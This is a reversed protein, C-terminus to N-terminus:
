HRPIPSYHSWPGLDVRLMSEPRWGCRQALGDFSFDKVMFDSKMLVPWPNDRGGM